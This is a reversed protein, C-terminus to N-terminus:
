GGSPQAADPEVQDRLERAFGNMARDELKMLEICDAGLASVKRRVIPKFEDSVEQPVLPEILREYEELVQAMYRGVRTKVYQERDM